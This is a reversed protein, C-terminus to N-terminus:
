AHFVKLAAYISIMENFRGIDFQRMLETKHLITNQIRGGYRPRFASLDRLGFLCSSPSQRNTLLAIITPLHECALKSRVVRFSGGM